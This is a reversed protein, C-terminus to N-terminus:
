RCAACSRSTQCCSSARWGRASSARRAGGDDVGRQRAAACSNLASTTVIAARRPRRCSRRCRHRSRARRSRADASGGASTAAPDVAAVARRREGDVGCRELPRLARMPMSCSPNRPGTSSRRRSCCTSRVSACAMLLVSCFARSYPSIRECASALAYSAECSASVPRPLRLRSCSCATRVIAASASRPVCDARSMTSRSWKLSILSVRPWASRRGAAAGPRAASRPRRAAPPRRRGGRRRRTRPAARRSRAPRPRRRARPRAAARARRAPPRRRGAGTPRPCRRCRRRATRVRGREVLQELAGVDREVLGLVGAAGERVVAGVAVLRAQVAQRQGGLQPRREGLVLEDHVELRLVLQAVRVSTPASASTRQCCGCRPRSGGDSNM